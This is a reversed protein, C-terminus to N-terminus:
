HIWIEASLYTIHLTYERCDTKDVSETLWKITM